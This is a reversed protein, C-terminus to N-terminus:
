HLCYPYWLWHMFDIFHSASIQNLHCTVLKTGMMAVLTLYMKVSRPPIPCTVWCSNAPVELRFGPNASPIQFIPDQSGAAKPFHPGQPAPGISVSYGLVFKTDQSEDAKAFHPGTQSIPTFVKKPDIHGRHKKTMYDLWTILDHFRRTGSRWIPPLSKVLLCPVLITTGTIAALTVHGISHLNDICKNNCLVSSLKSQLCLSDSPCNMSLMTPLLCAGCLQWLQFLILDNNM